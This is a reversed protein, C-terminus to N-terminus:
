ASAEIAIPAPPQGSEHRAMMAEFGRELHRVYLKTDFLPATRRNDALRQKLVALRKPDRALKTATDLYSRASYTV